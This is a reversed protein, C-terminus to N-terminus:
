NRLEAGGKSSGLRTAEAAMSKKDRELQTIRQQMEAENDASVEICYELIANYENAQWLEEHAASLAFNAENIEEDMAAILPEYHATADQTAFTYGTKFARKTHLKDRYQVYIELKQEETLLQEANNM